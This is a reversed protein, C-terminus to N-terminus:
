RGGGWPGGGGGGAGGRADGWRGLDGHTEGVLVPTFLHAVSSIFVISFLFRYTSFHAYGWSKSSTRPSRFMQFSSIPFPDHYLSLGQTYTYIFIIYKHRIRWFYSNFSICYIILILVRESQHDWISEQMLRYICLCQQKIRVDKGM